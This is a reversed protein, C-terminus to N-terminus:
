WFTRCEMRRTRPKTRERTAKLWLKLVGYSQQLGIGAEILADYTETEGTPDKEEM